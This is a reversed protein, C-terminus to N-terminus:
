QRSVAGALAIMSLHRQNLGRSLDRDENIEVIRIDGLKDASASTALAPTKGQELDGNHAIRDNDMELSMKPWTGTFKNLFGLM